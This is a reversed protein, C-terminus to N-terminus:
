NATVPIRPASNVTDVHRAFADDGSNHVLVTLHDFAGAVNAGRASFARDDLNTAHDLYCAAIWAPGSGQIRIRLVRNASSAEIERVFLEGGNLIDDLARVVGHRGSHTASSPKV